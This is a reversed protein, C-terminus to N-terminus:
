EELTFTVTYEKAVCNYSIKANIFYETVIHKILEAPFDSSTLEVRTTDGDIISQIIDKAADRNPKIRIQEDDTDLTIITYKVSTDIKAQATFNSNSDVDIIFIDDMSHTDCYYNLQDSFESVSKFIRLVGSSRNYIILSSFSNKIWLPSCYSKLGQFKFKPWELKLEEIKKYLDGSDNINVAMSKPSPIYIISNVNEIFHLLKLPMGPISDDPVLKCKYDNDENLIISGANCNIDLNEDISILKGDLGFCLLSHIVGRISDCYGIIYIASEYTSIVAIVKTNISHIITDNNSEAIEIHKGRNDSIISGVTDVFEEDNLHITNLSPDIYFKRYEKYWQM